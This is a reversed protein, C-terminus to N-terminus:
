DDATVADSAEASSEIAATEGTDEKPPATYM